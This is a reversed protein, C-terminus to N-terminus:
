VHSWSLPTPGRQDAPAPLDAGEPEGLVDQLMLTNGYVLASEDAGVDVCQATM